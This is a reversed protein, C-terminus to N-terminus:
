IVLFLFFFPEDISTNGAGPEGHLSFNYLFINAIEPRGTVYADTLFMTSKHAGLVDSVDEIDTPVEVIIDRHQSLASSCYLSHPFRFDFKRHEALLHHSIPCPASGRVSRHSDSMDLGSNCQLFEPFTPKGLLAM